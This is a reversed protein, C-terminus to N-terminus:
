RAERKLTERIKQILEGPVAETGCRRRVFAKFEVELEFWDLCGRCDGLHARLGQIERESLEEDLLLYLKDMLERCEDKM